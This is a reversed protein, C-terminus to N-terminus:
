FKWKKDFFLIINESYSRERFDVFFDYACLSPSGQM